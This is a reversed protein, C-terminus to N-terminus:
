CSGSCRTTCGSAPSTSSSRARAITLEGQELLISNVRDELLISNVRASISPVIIVEVVSSKVRTPQSASWIEVQYCGAHWGDEARGIRLENSAQVDVVTGDCSWLYQLPENPTGGSVRVLLSLVSGEEVCRLEPLDSIVTIPGGQSSSAGATQPAPPTALGVANAPGALERDSATPPSASAPERRQFASALIGAVDGVVALDTSVWEGTGVQVTCLEVGCTSKENEDFPDGRLLRLL